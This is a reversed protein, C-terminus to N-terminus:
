NKTQNRVEGDCLRDMIIYARRRVKGLTCHEFNDAEDHFPCVTASADFDGSLLVNKMVELNLVHDSSVPPEVKLGKKQDKIFKLKKVAHDMALMMEELSYVPPNPYKQGARKFLLELVSRVTSREEDMCFVPQPQDPVYCIDAIIQMIDRCIDADSKTYLEETDLPINHTKRAIRLCEARYGFPIEGPNLFSHWETRIGSIIMTDIFLCRNLLFNKGNKLSMSIISGEAPVVEGNSTVCHTSFSVLIFRKYAVASPQTEFLSRIERRMRQEQCKREEEEKELDCLRRGKTTVAEAPDKEAFHRNDKGGGAKKNGKYSM